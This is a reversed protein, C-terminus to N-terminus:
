VATPGRRPRVFGAVALAIHQAEESRDTSTLAVVGRRTAPFLALFASYGGTAGNHWILPQGLRSHEQIVWFLGTEQTPSETAVDTVVALAQGGPASGALLGAVLKTMDDLTSIVGGAPSYAGLVWPARRRGSRAHGWPATAHRRSVFTASMGLPELIREGLLTAYDSRAAVSVLHGVVAAGLNSYRHEGRHILPRAGAHRMLREISVNRYPNLGLAAFPASALLGPVGSGLRPLGSTHTCLERVSVTGLETAGYGPLLETVTTDLSLEGRAIADAVLMGTLGKTVSGIEFRRELDAVGVFGTRQGPTADLEVLAVAVDRTGPQRLRELENVIQPDGHTAPDHRLITLRRPDSPLLCAAV